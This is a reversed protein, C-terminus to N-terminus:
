PHEAEVLAALDYGKSFIHEGPCWPWCLAQHMAREDVCEAWLKDLEALTKHWKAQAKHWAVRAKDLEAQAKVRQARAKDWEARAKDREAQAKDLEAWAKDWEARAKDWEAQAKDWEAWLKDFEARVKDLEARAKDWEAWLKDFEAQKGPRVFLAVVEQPVFAFLARRIDQEKAPKSSLIHTYREEPDHTPEFIPGEHHSHMLLGVINM